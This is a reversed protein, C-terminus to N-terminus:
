PSNTPLTWPISNLRESWRPWPKTGGGWCGFSRAEQYQEYARPDSVDWNELIRGDTERVLADVEARHVQLNVRLVRGVWDSGASPPEREVRM